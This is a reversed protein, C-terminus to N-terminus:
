IGASSRDVETTIGSRQGCGVRIVSQRIGSWRHGCGRRIVVSWYGKDDNCYYKNNCYNNPTLLSLLYPQMTEIILKSAQLAFSQGPLNMGLSTYEHKTHSFSALSM